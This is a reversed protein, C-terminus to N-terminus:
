SCVRALPSRKAGAALSAAVALMSVVRLISARAHRLASRLFTM